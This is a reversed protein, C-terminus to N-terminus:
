FPMYTHTHTTPFTATHICTGQPDFSDRGMKVDQPFSLFRYCYVSRRVHLQSHNVSECTAPKTDTITHLVHLMLYMYTFRLSIAPIQPVHVEVYLTCVCVHLKHICVTYSYAQIKKHSVQLANSLIPFSHDYNLCTLCDDLYPLPQSWTEGTHHLLWDVQESTWEPWVEKTYGLLDRHEFLSAMSINNHAKIYCDALHMWMHHIYTCAHLYLSNPLSPPTPSLSQPLSFSPPVSLSPSLSLSLNNVCDNHISHQHILSSSTM